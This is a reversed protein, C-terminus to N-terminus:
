TSKVDKCQKKKCEMSGQYNIKVRRFKHISGKLRQEFSVKRRLFFKGLWEACIAGEEM